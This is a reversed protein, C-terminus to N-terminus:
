ILEITDGRKLYVYAKKGGGTTTEMGRRNVSTKTPITAVCVKVPTIGYVDKVAEAIQNKNARPSVDFVYVNQSASMTAKETIRPRTLIHAGVKGSAVTTKLTKTSSVEKTTSKPASTVKGDSDTETKAKRAFLSNKAKSGDANDKKKFLM